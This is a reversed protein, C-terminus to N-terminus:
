CSGKEDFSPYQPLPFGDDNSRKPAAWPIAVVKSVASLSTQLIWRGLATEPHAIAPIFSPIKQVHEVVPRFASEYAELAKSPHEGQELKSLEAALIYAGTIALSTGMGTLPTPAYATDGLCVIRSKSWKTMKIQQVAQFYFDPAQGMADLLRQAQWGVDAFERRLLDEQVQRGNKSVALWARKQAENCPMINFMARMTGHPDPRLTIIKSGLAHYVNWWDNDGPLRPVTWYAVYVGLDVVNVSEPPFCQKRVKSWQGDAAVLLDFERLEGNSLRVKVSEDDNSVVEKITTGLLYNVNPLDKTAEHFIAALDGRLIELESTFSASAGERVPFPAFPRGKADIFRTGKETTNLRKIQQLLGMKKVVEVANGQIDVSQGHPLIARTKEVVTVRTGAKALGHALAPGAIGAGSILVRM